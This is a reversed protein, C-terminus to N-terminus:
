IVNIELKCQNKQAWYILFSELLGTIEPPDPLIATVNFAAGKLITQTDQSLWHRDSALTCNPFNAKSGGRAWSFGKGIHTYIRIPIDTSIGVYLVRSTAKAWILYVGRSKGKLKYVEDPFKAADMPETITVTVAGIIPENLSIFQEILDPVKGVDM